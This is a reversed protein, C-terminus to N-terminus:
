MLPPPGAIKRGMRALWSHQKYGGSQGSPGMPLRPWHNFGRNREKYPRDDGKKEVTFFCLQFGTHLLLTGRSAKFQTMIREGM